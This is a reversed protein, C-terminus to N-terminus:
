ALQYLECSQIEREPNINPRGQLLYEASFPLERGQFVRVLFYEDRASLGLHKLPQPWVGGAADAVACLSRANDQARNNLEDPLQPDPFCVIARKAGSVFVRFDEYALDQARKLRGM